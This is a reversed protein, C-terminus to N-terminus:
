KFIVYKSGLDVMSLRELLQITQEDINISSHQNIKPLCYPINPIKSKFKLEDVNFNNKRKIKSTTVFSRNINSCLKKSIRLFIFM